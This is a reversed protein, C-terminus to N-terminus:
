KGEEATARKVSIREHASYSRIMAVEANDVRRVRVHANKGAATTYPRGIVEREGTEDSLRDGVRLEM